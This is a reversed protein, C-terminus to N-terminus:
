ELWQQHNAAEEFDFKGTNLVHKLDVKSKVTEIIEARTNFQRIASKIVEKDKETILDCKNM